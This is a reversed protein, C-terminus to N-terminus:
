FTKCSFPIKQPFPIFYSAFKDVTSNLLTADRFILRTGVTIFLNCFNPAKVTSVLAVKTLITNYQNMPVSIKDVTRFFPLYTESTSVKKIQFARGVITVNEEKGNNDDGFFM